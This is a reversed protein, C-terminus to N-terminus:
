KSPFCGDLCTAEVVQAAVVCAGISCGGGDVEVSPGPVAVNARLCEVVATEFVAGCGFVCAARYDERCTSQVEKCTDFSVFCDQQDASTPAVSLCTALGAPCDARCRAGPVCVNGLCSGKCCEGDSICAKGKDACLKPCVHPPSAELDDVCGAESPVNEIGLSPDVVGYLSGNDPSGCGAVLCLSM